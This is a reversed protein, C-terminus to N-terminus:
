DEGGNWMQDLNQFDKLISDSYDSLRNNRVWQRIAGIRAAINAKAIRMGEPASKGRDWGTQPWRKETITEYIDNLKELTEGYEGSADRWTAKADSAKPKLRTQLKQALKETQVSNNYNNRAQGTLKSPDVTRGSQIGNPIRDIKVAASARQAAARQRNARADIAARMRANEADIAKTDGRAAAAQQSRIAADPSQRIGLDPEPNNKAEARGAAARQRAALQVPTPDGGARVGHRSQDHKGGLHKETTADAADTETTEKEANAGIVFSLFDDNKM